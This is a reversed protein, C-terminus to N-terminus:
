KWPNKNKVLMEDKGLDFSVVCSCWAIDPFMFSVVVVMMEEATKASDVMIIRM